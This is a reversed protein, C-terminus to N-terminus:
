KKESIIDNLEERSPEFYLIDSILKEQHKIEIQHENTFNGILLYDLKDDGNKTFLNHCYGIIENLTNQDSIRELDDIIILGKLQSLVSEKVSSTLTKIIKDIVGASRTNGTSVSLSNSTISAAREFEDM